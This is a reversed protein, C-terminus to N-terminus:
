GYLDSVGSVNINVEFTENVNVAISSPSVFMTTESATVLAEKITLAIASGILLVVLLMLILNVPVARPEHGAM